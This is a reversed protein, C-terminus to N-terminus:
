ERFSAPPVTCAPRHLRGQPMATFGAPRFSLQASEKRGDEARSSVYAPHPRGGSDHVGVHGQLGSNNEPNYRLCGLLEPM